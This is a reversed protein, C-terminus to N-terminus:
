GPPSRKLDGGANCIGIFIPDTTPDGEVSYFDAEVM